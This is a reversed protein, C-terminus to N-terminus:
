PPAASATAPSSRPTSSPARSRSAPSRWPTPPSPPASGASRASPSRATRTAGCKAASASRALKGGAVIGSGSNAGFVSGKITVPGIDGGARIFGTLPADRGDLNGGVFVSGIGGQTGGTVDVWGKFVTAVKLAGLKGAIESHLPFSTGAPQTTTGFAGISKVDLTKLGPTAVNADGADIQGLDGGIRVTGLDLGHAELHGVNARGTGSGGAPTKATITVDADSLVTPVRFRDDGNRGAATATLDLVQLTGDDALHFNSAALRGKSIAVTVLDGDINTFTGTKHDKSFNVETGFKESGFIVYSAGSFFGHPSAGEAGILIDDFGDGNVDGASSVSAGAYEKMAQGPIRLSEAGHLASLELPTTFAGTKGFVVYAAGTKNGNASSTFAGILVDDFGDGNLDGAPSVAFGARDGGLEGNIKFGDAGNLKSLNLPSSFGTTKGFVVYAAGTNLGHAGVRSAGILLDGLGDGNVDGAASVGRGSEDGTTEGVIKFGTAGTLTSLNLPSTFSGSKGFVVYSAGAHSGNGFAGVVIDDFGDGNVDGAGSVNRGAYDHFAEGQMKFGTTGNLTSLNVVPTFGGAKGYVLYAAGAASGNVDVGHAGILVDDFGDGNVDGASSVSNGAYDGTAEGQIKFGTAGDLTSVKLVAGFKGAHGFVVYSAGTNLGAAYSGIFLDDFGDGNVDGAASVSAGTRDSDAAGEIRFGNAGDLTSLELTQTFGHAKGFVVYSVGVSSGSGDAFLAGIIVDDFGDGNVDGAGSVSNGANDGAAVGHIEFGNGGDLMSPFFAVVVAPAIRTELPEVSPIPNM